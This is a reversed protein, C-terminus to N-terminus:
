RARSTRSSRTPRSRRARRCRRTRCCGGAHAGARHHDVGRAALRDAPAVSPLRARGADARGVHEGSEHASRARRGAAPLDDRHHPRVAVAEDVVAAQLRRAPEHAVGGDRRAEARRDAVPRDPEHLRPDPDRRHHQGAGHRLRLAQRERLVGARRAPQGVPRAAPHRAADAAQSKYDDISAFPFRLINHGKVTMGYAMNGVSTIISVVTRSAKDELQVIDGNRRAEYPQAGAPVAMVVGWLLVGIMHATRKDM